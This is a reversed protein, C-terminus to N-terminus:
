SFVNRRNCICTDVLALAFFDFFDDSTNSGIALTALYHISCYFYMLDFLIQSSLTYHSLLPESSDTHIRSSALTKEAPMCMAKFGVQYALM